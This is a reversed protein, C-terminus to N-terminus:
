GSGAFGPPAGVVVPEASPEGFLAPLEMLGTLAGPALGSASSIDEAQIVVVGPQPVKGPKTTWDFSADAVRRWALLYGYPNVVGDYGLGLLAAPHVEFHLHPPTGVADGTAGVFGIVDGAKVQSGEYALPSYASLHAYYFENGLGDRLWARNGGLSNWGVLFLTGDTVALVPAGVPAFIDNGHHWGTHARGAAFDNTFSSPGYVPFVYGDATLQPRINAPPNEVVPPPITVPDDPEPDRSPGTSPDVPVGPKDPPEETKPPRPASASAEAYGVVIEAGAPLGGHEATLHVHLGSVFTRRGIRKADKVVAQELLVVYGWDGLPVRANPKARVKTGLITVDALWSGTLGGTARKSSATAIARTSMAGVTIEGDFLSVTRLTSSASAAGQDAATAQARAWTAGTTVITDGFTLGKSRVLRAPPASAQGITEETGDPYLVRLALARSSAKAGAPQAQAASPALTTALVLALAALLRLRMSWLTAGAKM